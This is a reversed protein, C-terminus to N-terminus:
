PRADPRPCLDSVAQVRGPRDLKELMEELAEISSEVDRVHALQDPDLPRQDGHGYDCMRYYSLGDITAEIEDRTLM